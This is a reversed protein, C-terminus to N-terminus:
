LRSVSRKHKIPVWWTSDKGTIISKGFQKDVAKKVGTFRPLGYDHGGLWGGIKVKDIWLSIDSLVAAYSHEADIFVLDVSYNSFAQSAKESTAYHIVAREGAFEVNRLAKNKVEDWYKQTRVPYPNSALYYKETVENLPMWQDVMHVVAKANSKLVSASTIGDGCGVEVAICTGKLRSIIESARGSIKM